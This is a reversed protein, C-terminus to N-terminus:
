ADPQRLVSCATVGYYALARLAQADLREGCLVIPVAPPCPMAYQSLVKGECQELPLTERPALLADRPSCVPHPVRYPPADDPLAARRPVACLADTFQRLDDDANEPTLMATLTDPDYYECFIGCKALTRALADGTYGYLRPAISIKLPEDGCLTYGCQRLREKSDRVKPLFAALRQPYSELYANARDLSQLLLYSPSTSGFLALAAKVHPAMARQVAGGLHLYAGGTLVPLTKHASDCCLDAGLDTPLQPTPLFHLYAGHANDVALLAGHRRCVAALAAVDAMSGRYDPYTLYVTGVPHERLANELSQPTVTCCVYGEGDQPHLWRVDLDLLAAAGLFSAHANRGALVSRQGTHLLALYLMARICHSSGETSYYTDCGFLRSANQESELIVGHPLYLTDAGDIETIDLSECGLFPVGKHGPMHLRVPQSAAYTRVFDCIPTSIM